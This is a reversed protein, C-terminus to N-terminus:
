SILKSLKISFLASALMVSGIYILALLRNGLFFFILGVIALILCTKAFRQFVQQIPAQKTDEALVKSFTVNNKNLYSAVFALVLIIVALLIRIIM